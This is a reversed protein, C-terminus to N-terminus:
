ASSNDFFVLPVTGTTGASAFVAAALAPLTAPWAGLTLAVQAYRAAGYLNLNGPLAVIGLSNAIPSAPTRFCATTSTAKAGVGFWYPKDAALTIPLAVATAQWGAAGTPWPDLIWVRTGTDAEYIAATYNVALSALSLWRIRNVTIASRFRFFVLRGIATGIGTPTPGAVSAVTNQFAWIVEDHDPAGYGYNVHLRTEWPESGGGGGPAAAWKLGLAQASDATLVHGDTGIPVRAPLTSYAILDGKTTLIGLKHQHDSRATTGASGDAETGLVDVPYGAGGFAPIESDRAITAPIDADAIARWILGDGQTSDAVLFTGNAGAAKRAPTDAATAVIIDGKVDVLAKAIFDSHQSGSHTPDVTPAGWTGGLEGGPSTGVVIEASLGAHATGVLYDADTPAGGGGPPAAFTGDDRLFTTGGGPFGTHTAGIISHDRAHHQDATVDPLGAHTAAAHGHGLVAYISDGEAQTLYTAHPNAAGEHATIAGALEADTALGLTVSHETQDPHAGGGGGGGGVRIYTPGSPGAQPDPIGIIGTEDSVRVVGAGRIDLRRVHGVPKGRRLLDIGAEADTGDKGDQPPPIKPLVAQVIRELPPADKGDRPPPIAGVAQRVDRQVIQELDARLSNALERARKELLALITATTV